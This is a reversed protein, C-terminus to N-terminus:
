AAVRYQQLKGVMMDLEGIFDDVAVKIEAILREDRTVRKVFLPLGPCYSVFDVFERGSVWLQGQVQKRHESPLVDNLLCEVQLHQLKTKIELLGKDGILADPSAGVRGRKLFGVLQPEADTMFSYLERAESEQAHGRETHANSFGEECRGSLIQGALTRMYKLRTKGEGKALVSDFESATVIGLRAAFWEPSNQDCTIIELPNM